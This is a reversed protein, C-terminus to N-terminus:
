CGPSCRRPPRSCGSSTAPPAGALLPVVLSALAGGAVLEFVINPITNAANYINGLDEHGVTNLFVFTRGFGAIRAVITLGTILVAAGALGSRSSTM